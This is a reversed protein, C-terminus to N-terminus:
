RYVVDARRNEAWGSEAQENARPREEGFSVAEMQADKVGLLRLRERVAEARRQGLALNYEHSGREDTNGEIVVHRDARALFDGHAILVPTFEPRVLYSDYDFFVSRKSLAGNPDNLPDLPVRNAEVRAVSQSQGQPLPAPTSTAASGASPGPAVTSAPAVPTSGCGAIGAAAILATVAWPVLKLTAFKM